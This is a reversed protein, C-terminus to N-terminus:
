SDKKAACEQAVKLPHKLKTLVERANMSAVVTEDMGLAVLRKKQDRQRKAKKGASKKPRSRNKNRELTTGM